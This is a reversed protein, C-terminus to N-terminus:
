GDHPRTLAEIRSLAALLQKKEELPVQDWDIEREPDPDDTLAVTQKAQGFAREYAFKIAANADKDEGYQIISMLRRRCMEWGDVEIERKVEVGDITETEVIKCRSQQIM